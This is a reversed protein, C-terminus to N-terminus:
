RAGVSGSVKALARLDATQRSVSRMEHRNPYTNALAGAVNSLSTVSGLGNRTSALEWVGSARIRSANDPQDHGHPVVLHPIGANIAQAMNGIGEQM